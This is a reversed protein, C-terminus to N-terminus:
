FLFHRRFTVPNISFAYHNPPSARLELAAAHFSSTVVDDKMKKRAWHNLGFILM